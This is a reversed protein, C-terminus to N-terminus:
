AARRVDNEDGSLTIRCSLRDRRFREGRADYFLIVNHDAAWVAGLRLERPGRLSFQMGCPRGKRRLEISSTAFQDSLLSEHECLVHHVYTHLEEITRISHPDVPMKIFAEQFDRNYGYASSRV